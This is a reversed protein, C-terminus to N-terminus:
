RLIMVAVAENCARRRKARFPSDTVNRVIVRSVVTSAAVPLCSHVVDSSAGFRGARITSVGPERSTLWSRSMLMLVYETRM